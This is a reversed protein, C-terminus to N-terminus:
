APPRPLWVLGVRLLEVDTKRPKLAKTTLAIRLPDTRQEVESVAAAFDAQLEAIRSQVAEVGEEALGVDRSEKMSRSASRASTAARSLTAGSLKRRGFFAGAVAGFVSAATSITQATAQSKQEAVKAQARRLRDDFASFKSAFRSKVKDVEADRHERAQDALRVRFAGESEGPKSSVGLDRSAFVVLEESRALFDKFSKSWDEFSKARTAEAPVSAFGTAGAPAVESLTGPDVPQSGAWDVLLAEGAAIPLARSVERSFSWGADPSQFHVRGQGLIAASYSATPGTPRCYLM